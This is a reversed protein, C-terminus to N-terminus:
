LRFAGLQLQCGFRRWILVGSIDGSESEQAQSVIILWGAFGPTVEEAPVRTVLIM